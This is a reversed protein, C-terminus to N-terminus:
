FNAHSSTFVTELFKSPYSWFAPFVLKGNRWHKSLKLNILASELDLQLLDDETAYNMVFDCIEKGGSHLIISRLSVTDSHADAILAVERRTNACGLIKMAVATSLVVRVYHGKVGMCRQNRHAERILEDQEEPTFTLM